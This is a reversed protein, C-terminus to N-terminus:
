DAAHTEVLWARMLTCVAWGISGGIFIGTMNAIEDRFDADRGTLGQLIELVGGMAALGILALIWGRRAGLAVTVLGALLAYAGLHQFKDYINLGLGNTSLEGWIVLALVAWFVWFASNTVTRTNRANMGIVRAAREQRRTLM